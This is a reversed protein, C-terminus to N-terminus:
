LLVSISGQLRFFHCSPVTMVHLVSLLKCLCFLFSTCFHSHNHEVIPRWGRAEQFSIKNICREFCQLCIFFLPPYVTPLTIDTVESLVPVICGVAQVTLGRLLSNNLDEPSSCRVAEVDVQAKSKNLWTVFEHIECTCTYPNNGLLIKINGLRDLESFTGSYVALLSNNSLLLQRLSPVYSFMGPPLLALHNGSLDLRLLGWLGGWRLATTLDTLATFNHLAQSLNLEQLPSDPISLAEPHILALQNASLDLFRLITLASFTHSALETIKKFSDPGIQHLHNGTFILTRAYGPINKPVTLLSKSVCKVTSTVAFCECSLPCGSLQHPTFFLLGWFVFVAFVCMTLYPFWKRWD